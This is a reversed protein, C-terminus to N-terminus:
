GVSSHHLTFLLDLIDWIIILAYASNFARVFVWLVFLSLCLPPFSKPCKNNVAAEMIMHPLESVTLLYVAIKYLAKWLTLYLCHGLLSSSVWACQQESGHKVTIIVKLSIPPPPHIGYCLLQLQALFFPAKLPMCAYRNKKELRWIWLM